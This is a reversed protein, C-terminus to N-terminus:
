EHGGRLGDVAQEAGTPRRWVGLDIRGLCIRSILFFLGCNVVMTALVLTSLGVAADASVGQTGLLVVFTADRTGAGAVTVPVMALMAAVSVAAVLHVPSLALGLARACLWAAAYYPVWGAVTGVAVVPWWRPGVARFARRFTGFEEIARDAWRAGQWRGLLRELLGPCWVVVATAALGLAAAAVLGVLVSAPTGPLLVVGCLALLGVLGVDVLRDLVTAAVSTGMDAGREVLFYAKLLDGVKGPTVAGALMGASYIGIAQRLPLEIGQARVIHVWRWGKALALPVAMACAAAFLLVDASRVQSWWRAPGVRWLLVGLLCPGLLRWLAFRRNGVAETM